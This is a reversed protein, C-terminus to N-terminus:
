ECESSISERIILREDARGAPAPATRDMRAAAADLPQLADEDPSTRHRSPDAASDGPPESWEKVPVLPLLLLQLSTGLLQIGATILFTFSYGFRDSLVGGLAASGCWGFRVVSTLSQWRARSHRPTFDMMVSTNLPQTGNMLATRTLYIGVVLLVKHTPVRGGELGDVLWFDALFALACLLVIGFVRNLLMVQVRGIRRSLATSASTSVAMLLPLAAYVLQVGVPSRRGNALVSPNRYRLQLAALSSPPAPTM